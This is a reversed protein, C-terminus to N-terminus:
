RGNAKSDGLSLEVKVVLDDFKERVFGRSIRGRVHARHADAIQQAHVCAILGFRRDADIIWTFLGVRPHFRKERV